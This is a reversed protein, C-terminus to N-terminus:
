QRAPSGSSSGPGWRWGRRRGQPHPLWSLWNEGCRVLDAWVHKNNHIRIRDSGESKKAQDSGFRVDFRKNDTCNIYPVHVRYLYLNVWHMFILRVLFWDPTSCDLDHSKQDPNRIRIWIQDPNSGSEILDTIRIRIRFGSGSESGPPCFHHVFTSFVKSIDHKSTSSTRKQSSFAEKKVQVGKISAQPDTDFSYPDLVRGRILGTRPQAM